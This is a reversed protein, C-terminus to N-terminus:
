RTCPSISRCAPHSLPLTPPLPLAPPCAPVTCPGAATPHIRPVTGGHRRLCLAQAAWCAGLPLWRDGGAGGGVHGGVWGGVKTVAGARDYQHVIPPTEGEVRRYVGDRDVVIPWGYGARTLLPAAPAPSAPHSSPPTSELGQWACSHARIVRRWSGCSGRSGRGGGGVWGGLLGLQAGTPSGGSVHMRWFVSVPAGHMVRGGVRGGAWGGATHVPSDWNRAMHHPFDLKGEPGLKHLMYNHVAQDSGYWRCKPSADEFAIRLLQVTYAHVAAVSGITIGAAPCLRTPPAVPLPGCPSPWLSLAQLQPPPLSSESTRAHAASGHTGGAAAPPLSAVYLWRVALLCGVAACRLAGCRRLLHTCGAAGRHRGRWLM